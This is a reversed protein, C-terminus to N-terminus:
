WYKRWRGFLWLALLGLAAGVSDIFVDLLQGQRSPVFSQHFEDTIAYLVALAFAGIAVPWRWSKQLLPEALVGRGVKQPWQLTRLARWLLLALIAYEALHATKRVSLVVTNLSRESIKPFLWRVVPGIIRSSRQGSLKDGSASFILAM